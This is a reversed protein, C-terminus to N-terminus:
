DVYELLLVLIEKKISDICAAVPEIMMVMGASGGYQYDDIQKQNNQAYDRLDIVHIEVLKKDQARKLIPHSFPSPLLDPLCTIIDIRM